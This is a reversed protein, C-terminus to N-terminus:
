ISDRISSMNGFYNSLVCHIMVPRLFSLTLLPAIISFQSPILACPCPVCSNILTNLLSPANDRTNSGVYIIGTGGSCKPMEKEERKDESEM